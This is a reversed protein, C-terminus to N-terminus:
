FSPDLPPPVFRTLLPNRLFRPATDAAIARLRTCKL